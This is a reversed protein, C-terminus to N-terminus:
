QYVEAHDAVDADIPPAYMDLERRCEEAAGRELHHAVRHRLFDPPEAGLGGHAHDGVVRPRRVLDRRRAAFLQAHGAECRGRRARRLRELEDLQLAVAKATGVAARRLRGELVEEARRRAPADAIAVGAALRELLELRDLWTQSFLSRAIREIAHGSHPSVWEFPQAGPERASGVVAPEEGADRLLDGLLAHRAAQRLFLERLEAARGLRRDRPELRAAPRRLDVREQPDGLREVALELHVEARPRLRLPSSM